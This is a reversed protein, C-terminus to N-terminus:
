GKPFTCDTSVKRIQKPSDDTSCCLDLSEQNRPLAVKLNSDFIWKQTIVVCHDEKGDSGLVRALYLGTLEPGLFGLPEDKTVKVKNLVTHQGRLQNVFYSFGKSQHIFRSRQNYIWSGVEKQNFYHMASAMAYVMCTEEGEMQEYKIKPGVMPGVKQHQRRDGPPVCIFATTSKTCSMVQVLFNEDFNQTVWPEALDVYEKTENCYGLWKAELSKEERTRKVRKGKKNKTYLPGTKITKAAIYKLRNIVRPDVASCTVGESEMNEPHLYKRKLM